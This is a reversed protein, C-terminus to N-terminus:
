DPKSYYSTVIFRKNEIAFSNHCAIAGLVQNKINPKNTEM